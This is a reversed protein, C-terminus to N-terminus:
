RIKKYIKKAQQKEMYMIKRVKILDDYTNIKHNKNRILLLDTYELKTIHKTWYNNIKFIKDLSKAKFNLRKYVHVFQILNAKVLYEIKPEDLYACIYDFFSMQLYESKKAAFWQCYPINLMDIIEQKTMCKTNELIGVRIQHQIYLDKIIIMAGVVVVMIFADEM